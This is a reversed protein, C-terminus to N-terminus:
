GIGVRCFKVASTVRDEVSVRVSGVENGRFCTALGASEEGKAVDVAGEDATGNM